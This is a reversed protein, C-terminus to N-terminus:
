SARRRAVRCASLRWASLSYSRLGPGNFLSNRPDHGGGCDLVIDNIQGPLFHRTTRRRWTTMEITLGTHDARLVYSRSKIAFQRIITSVIVVAFLASGLVVFWGVSGNRYMLWLIFPVSCLIPCIVAVVKMGKRRQDNPFDKSVIVGENSSHQIHVAFRDVKAAKLSVTQQTQLGMGKFDMVPPDFARPTRSRLPHREAAPL